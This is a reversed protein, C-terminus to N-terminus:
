SLVRTLYTIHRGLRECYAVRGDFGDAQALELWRYYAAHFLEESPDLWRDEPAPMFYDDFRAFGAMGYVKCHEIALGCDPPCISRLFLGIDEADSGFGPDDDSFVLSVAKLSKFITWSGYPQALRPRAYISLTELQTCHRLLPLMIEDVCAVNDGSANAPDTLVNDLILHRLRPWSPLFRDLDFDFLSSPYFAEIHISTLQHCRSLKELALDNISAGHRRGRWDYQHVGVRVEEISPLVSAIKELIHLLLSLEDDEDNRCSLDVNISRLHRFGQLSAFNDPLLDQCLGYSLSRLAPFSGLTPIPAGDHYDLRSLARPPYERQDYQGLRRKPLPDNMGFASISQLTTHSGIAALLGISLISPSLTLHTLSRLNRIMATFTPWVDEVPESHADLSLTSISPMQEPIAHLLTQLSELPVPEDGWKRYLVLNFTHVSSKFLHTAIGVVDAEIEMALQLTNLNSLDLSPPLSQHISSRVEQPSIWSLHMTLSKIHRAVFKNFRAWSSASLPSSLVVACPFFIEVERLFPLM